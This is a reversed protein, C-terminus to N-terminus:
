VHARGIQYFPYNGFTMGNIYNDFGVFTQANPLSFLETNVAGNAKFSNYLVIVIPMMWIISIIAFVVTLVVKGSTQKEDINKRIRNEM